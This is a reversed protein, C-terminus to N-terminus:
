APPARAQFSARAPASAPLAIFQAFFAEHASGVFVLAPADPLLLSGSLSIIACIACFEDRDPATGAPASAPEPKEQAAAIAAEGAWGNLHVHDFSLALQLALALLAGYSGGRRNRRFWM